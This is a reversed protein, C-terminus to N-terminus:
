QSNWSIQTFIEILNFSAVEKRFHIIQNDVFRESESTFEIFSVAHSLCCCLLVKNRVFSFFDFLSWPNKCILLYRVLIFPFAFFVCRNNDFNILSETNQRWPTNENNNNVTYTFKIDKCVWEKIKNRTNKKRKQKSVEETIKIVQEWWTLM